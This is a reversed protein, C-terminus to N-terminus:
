REAVTAPNEFLNNNFTYQLQEENFGRVVEESIIIDVVRDRRCLEQAHHTDKILTILKRSGKIFVLIETGPEPFNTLIACGKIGQFCPRQDRRAPNM